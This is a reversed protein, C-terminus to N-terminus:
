HVVQQEKIDTEEVQYLSGAAYKGYAAILRVTYAMSGDEEYDWTQPICLISTGDNFTIKVNKFEYGWGELQKLKEYAEM